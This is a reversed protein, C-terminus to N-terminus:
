SFIKKGFTGQIIKEVADKKGKDAEEEISIDSKLNNEKKIDRKKLNDLTKELAVDLLGAVSLIFSVIDKPGEKVDLIINIAQLSLSVLSAIEKILVGAIIGHPSLMALGSALLSTSYLVGAFATAIDLFDRSSLKDKRMALKIKVILKAVSKIIGMAGAIIMTGPLIKVLHSVIHSESSLFVQALKIASHMKDVTKSLAIAISKRDRKIAAAKIFIMLEILGIADLIKSLYELNSKMKPLFSEKVQKSFFESYIRLSNLIIKIHLSIAKICQKVVKNTKLIKEVVVNFNKYKEVNEPKALAGKEKLVLSMGEKEEAILEKREGLESEIEAAQEEKIQQQNDLVRNEEIKRKELQLKEFIDEFLFDKIFLKMNRTLTRTAGNRDFLHIKCANYARLLIDERVTRMLKRFDHLITYKKYKGDVVDAESADQINAKISITGAKSEASMIAEEDANRPNRIQPTTEDINNESNSSQSTTINKSPDM